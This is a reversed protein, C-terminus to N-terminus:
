DITTKYKDSVPEKALLFTSLKELTKYITSFKLIELKGTTYGWYATYDYQYVEIEVIRSAEEWKFLISNQRMIVTPCYMGLSNTISYIKNTNIKIKKPIDLKSWLMATYRSNTEEKLVCINM